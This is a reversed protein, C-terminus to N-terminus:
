DWERFFFYFLDDFYNLTHTKKGNKKVLLFNCILVRDASTFTLAPTDAHTKNCELCVLHYEQNMGERRRPPPWKNRGRCISVSRSRRRWAPGEEKETEFAESRLVLLANWGWRFCFLPVYSCEGWLLSTYVDNRYKCSSGRLNAMSPIMM